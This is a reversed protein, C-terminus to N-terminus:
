RTIKRSVAGRRGMSGRGGEVSKQLGRFAKECGSEEQGSWRPSGSGVGGVEWKESAVEWKGSGM